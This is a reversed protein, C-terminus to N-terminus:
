PTGVKYRILGIPRACPLQALRQDRGSTRRTAKILVSPRQARHRRLPVSRSLHRRELARRRRPARDRGAVDRNLEGTMSSPAGRVTGSFGEIVPRSWVLRGAAADVADVRGSVVWEGAANGTVVVDRVILPPATQSCGARYDDVREQWRVAGNLRDLAVLQGDLQPSSSSTGVHMHPSM